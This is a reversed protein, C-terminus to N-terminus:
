QLAIIANDGMLYFLEDNQEIPTGWQYVRFGIDGVKLKMPKNKTGNGVAIIEVKDSDKRFSDPVVIGGSTIEEGIFPKVLVNNLIPQIM